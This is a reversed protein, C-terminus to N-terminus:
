PVVVTDGSQLLINQELHRGKAVEDYRFAISVQRGNERRLIRVDDMAAYPTAGGALSLSQMVDLRRSFPYEGPRNVKGVVYIRNGGIQRVSVTIVPDPIYKRLREEISARLEEVTRGAAIQEGALPFSLGGDPRVLVESQLDTEKWVSIFVVDGPQLRSADADAARVPSVAWLALLLLLPLSAPSKLPRSTSSMHIVM